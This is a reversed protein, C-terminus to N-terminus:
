KVVPIGQFVEHESPLWAMRKWPWIIAIAKGLVDSEPVTGQSPLNQHSRSDASHSRNDGMVWLHGAPVKVSFEQRSPVEGTKLYTEELPAGNVTLNGKADCCRVTDGPLGIVRKILQQHERDTRLGVWVLGREWWSSTTEPPNGLWKQSDNFVVIDGREIPVSGPTLRSALIYDGPEITSSMSSTPIYFRQVVFHRVMTMTLLAVLLIVLFEIIQFGLSRPKDVCDSHSSPALNDKKEVKKM